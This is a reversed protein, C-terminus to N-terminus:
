ARRAASRGPAAPEPADLDLVDVAVRLTMSGGGYIVGKLPTVDAYDRGWALTIHRTAPVQNNTPDFDVWGLDPVYVAFWAHSADAGVLRARGPPPSTELYGSVYRAALGQSRLAGIALQAFDQCVGRRHELVRALPTALTTFEPDYRFDRHIRDMLDHVAELLPRGPRFSPGAYGALAPSAAVLPSDLAFERAEVAAAESGARLWDRTAEWRRDGSYALPAPQPAVRLESEASVTLESHPTDISFHATRNGYYDTRERYDSAPPSIDIRHSICTQRALTRPILRAENYGRDVPESYRYETRHRIRYNM